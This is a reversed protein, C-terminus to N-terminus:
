WCLADQVSAGGPALVADTFCVVLILYVLFAFGVNLDHPFLLSMRHFFQGTSKWLAEWTANTTFFGGALAPSMLSTPKIEPNPLDGSLPSPLGSWYEQRSFRMSLPAQRAVTWPDAFLQVCSFVCVWVGMVWFIARKM